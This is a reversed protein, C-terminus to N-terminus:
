KKKNSQDNIEQDLDAETISGFKIRRKMEQDTDEDLFEKFSEVTFSKMARKTQNPAPKYGIFSLIEFEADIKGQDIKSKYFAQYIAAAALFLDKQYGTACDPLANGLGWDQLSGMLEYMDSFQLDLISTALSALAYKHRNLSNSFYNAEPFKHVHQSYGGLRENEAMYFVNRLKSLTKSGPITGLFVGDQRLHSLLKILASDIDTNMHLSFSSIIADANESNSEEAISKSSEEDLIETRLDFKAGTEKKLENV